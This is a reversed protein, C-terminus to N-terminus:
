KEKTKEFVIADVIIIGKANKSCIEVYSNGPLFDFEGINVSASPNIWISKIGEKSNVNVYFGKIQKALLEQQYLPSMLSVKYRGEKLKPLFRIYDNESKGSSLLFSERYAKTWPLDLKNTLWYYNSKICNVDQNDIIITKEDNAKIFDVIVRVMVPSNICRDDNIVLYAVFEGEHKNMKNIDPIIELLSTTDNIETKKVKLWNNGHKYVPELRVPYKNSILYKKNLYNLIIAQSKITDDKLQPVSFHITNPILINGHGYSDMEWVNRSDFSPNNGQNVKLEPLSAVEGNITIHQTTTVYNEGDFLTLTVPYIGPKQYIHVPNPMTSFGGEGFSWYHYPITGSLGLQSNTGDFQITSGTKGPEFQNIVAKLEKSAAKRNELIQWFIIWPDILVEEDDQQKVKFVFHTHPHYGTHIGATYAYKEGKNIPQFEPILLENLHHTQLIWTDGNKWHKLARWRNNNHGAKLSNFYYNNDFSIPSWLPTNSPMDVDMGGHLDTGFYTGLWTDEGRYCKGVDPFGAPMPCWDTIKEPCIPLTADQLAFRADKVPLCEGHNENYFESLNGLADFWIRLGNVVYPEYFSEQVPVYRVMEMDQGDINVTCEMKYVSADNSTGKSPLDVTSFIIESRCEKLIIKVIRGNKLEYNIEDGKNIEIVTLTSKTKLDKSKGLLGQFLLTTIFIITIIVKM